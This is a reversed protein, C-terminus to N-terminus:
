LPASSDRKVLSFNLFQQLPELTRGTGRLRIEELLLEMAKRAMAAVPQRVTTLAPWITTALPTDDFGVITLDAPVDLGLRHAVAITAAAMDDNSAFIASPRDQAALLQEAALLGSRYSFSGQKVWDRRVELQNEHLAAAFGAYRQASATQNPAGVIFGLRRHGLSLLYRTMAAAAEFDNIRVSLGDAEPRGTAVAIFPIKAARLADLAVKSDSLPPPLIVGTIGDRMLKEIVTRESRAGCKELVIQCGTHSSQELVGVLLENMYAASPNTYLLGIHVSAAKALNRAAVNPSYGLEKIAAEVRQRTESRVNADGSLVRSVTMPSVGIHKAVEHMTVANRRRRQTRKVASRASGQELTVTREASEDNLSNNRNNYGRDM